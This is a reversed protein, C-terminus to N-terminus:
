VRRGSGMSSFVPLLLSYRVVDRYEPKAMFYVYQEVLDVCNNGRGEIKFNTFGMPVYKNYLNEVTLHNASKRRTFATNKMHPCNWEPIKAWGSKISEMMQPNCNERQFEGIFRYHEGRRPCNDACVANILIECKEKHPLKELIDFKNNFNYDLVVYKYDKGLEACLEDFDRIQKCTSSTLPMDPHTKRIHEELLPSFVIAENMGNDTLALIRNGHYDDLDEEKLVPNTFTYRCPIGFSNFRGVIQLVTQDLMGKEMYGAVIRGGNWKVPFSDFVSGIEIGDYFLEPNRKIMDALCLNIMSNYRDLFNPLHFKISM